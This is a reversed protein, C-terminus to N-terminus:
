TFVIHHYSSKLDFKFLYDHKEFMLAAVRLDEYKFHSVHLFQNLYRLNLVLHLKGTANSVVSLPNCLYPKERVRVACRNLVLSRVAEDAFTHHLEASRHNCHSYPPPLYKIPLCYGNEICDIVWPPAQLTERLFSLKKNLAVRCM